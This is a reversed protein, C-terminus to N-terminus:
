FNWQFNSNQVPIASLLLEAGSNRLSGVNTYINSRLYPPQQATYNYLLDTTLRNYVDLAGSLRNDFFAFDLGVNWEAKEEWRLNPNPNRAAGYTQYYIGNQPYVGGTSLSVLSQYNPIGQNGTVGYGVRLKLNNIAEMDNM